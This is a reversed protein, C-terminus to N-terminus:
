RSLLPALASNAEARARLNPKAALAEELAREAASRNGARFELVALEFRAEAFDVEGPRTRRFWTLAEAPRNAKLLLLGLTGSYTFGEAPGLSSAKRFNELAKEWNGAARQVYALNALLMPNRPELEVAREFARTADVLKGERGLVTGLNSWVAARRPQLRATELWQPVARRFQGTRTLADALAFRSEPERPDAAVARELRPIAGRLDGKKLLAIGSRLLAFRNGSDKTLVGDFAAVADDFRGRRLLSEGELLRDREAVRDKPDPLGAPPKEGVAVSGAGLYGLARLRAVTEADDTRRAVTVPKAELGDLDALLAVARTRNQAIVNKTEGPDSGLDYLEPRPAKILKWGDKRMASLPAWGYSLWPELTEIYTGPIKQPKGSLIPYLSVGDVGTLPPAGLLSLTTPAVDVLRAPAQSQGSELRGPAHFILPVLVTKDYLFYGHTKERHEGLSEGHDGAFITVRDKSRAAPLNRLLDGIASDTFAVEGDYAGRPGPRLFAAPPTYPDHPDYYHVWAFWPSRASRIWALAAATTASAPRERWGEAGVPLRDDYVEFGADLGFQARLPYGSVFAATAYGRKRLLGALTQSGNFTQGNARVGHRRPLLGTFITVHSPLTLPVASVAAPFRFGERALRDISPTLNRGSVWGLADPRLTDVTILLLDPALPKGSGRSEPPIGCVLVLGLALRAIFLERRTRRVRSLM